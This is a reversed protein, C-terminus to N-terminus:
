RFWEKQYRKLTSLAVPWGEPPDDPRWEEIFYRAERSPTAYATKRRKRASYEIWLRGLIVELQAPSAPPKRTAKARAPEQAPERGEQQVQRRAAREEVRRTRDRERLGQLLFEWVDRDPSGNPALAGLKTVFLPLFEAPPVAPERRASRGRNLRGFRDELWDVVPQGPLRELDEPAPQQGPLLEVGERLRVQDRLRKLEPQRLWDELFAVEEPTIPRTHPDSM